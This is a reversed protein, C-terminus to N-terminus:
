WEVCLSFYFSISHCFITQKQSFTCVIWKPWSWSLLRGAFILSLELDCCKRGETSNRTWKSNKLQSLKPMSITNSFLMKKDDNEIHHFDRVWESEGGREREGLFSYLFFLIFHFLHDFWIQYMVCEYWVRISDYTLITTTKRWRKKNETLKIELRCDPTGDMIVTTCKRFSSKCKMM